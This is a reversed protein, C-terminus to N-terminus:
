VSPRQRQELTWVAPMSFVPPLQEPSSCVAPERAPSPDMTAAIEASSQAQARANWTTGANSAKVTFDQAVDVKNTITTSDTGVAGIEINLCIKMAPDGSASASSLSLASTPPAGLV